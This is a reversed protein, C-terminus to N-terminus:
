TSGGNERFHLIYIGGEHAIVDWTIPTGIKQTLWNMFQPLPADSAAALFVDERLFAEPDFEWVDIGFRDFLADSGPSRLDWGGWYSINTPIGDSYDPFARYDRRSLNVDAIFLSDSHDLAYEELDEYASRAPSEAAALGYLFPGSQIATYVCCRQPM